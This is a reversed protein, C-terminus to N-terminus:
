YEKNYEFKETALKRKFERDVLRFFVFCAWPNQTANPQLLKQLKTQDLHEM